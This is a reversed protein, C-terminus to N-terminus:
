LTMAKAGIDTRYHMKDFRILKIAQYAKNLAQRLDTGLGTVNLVRGGATVVQGERLKTGAHFVLVDELQAVEGLGSIPKGTDYKGPYGGSALVVTAAFGPQWTVKLSSLTGNLSHEIIDLLDTKLLPLIAQTEPDGFRCNYELVRLGNPTLMLGAYLIGVFPNGEARLGDITPQLVTTVIQNLLDPPCIPAPTYAGMGGTNPGFDQNFVRKHDQAPPMPIVTQGDCFALVSVEPGTLQEEIIVEDGAVGFRREVMVQRLGEEAEHISEPIIVGKGAALGSAKIVVPAPQKYLYQRAAMFDSFVAYNGSPIHHRQMFAKAFAKSAEIQAAAGSPGWIKLGHAQFKDVIGEALPMEPGVVTLDISAKLAFDLFGEIGEVTPSFASIKKQLIDTGGNGPVVIVRTVRKSQALKWALAHERGGSGIIMIKM